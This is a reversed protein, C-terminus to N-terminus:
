GGPTCITYKFHIPQSHCQLFASVSLYIQTVFYVISVGEDEDEEGEEGEYDEDEEEVIDEGEEDATKAKKVQCCIYQSLMMSVLGVFM